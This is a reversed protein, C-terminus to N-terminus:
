SYSWKFGYYTKIKNRCCKIINAGFCNNDRAAEAVSPYKKIVEGNITYQIVPVSRSKISAKITKDSPKIGKHKEGMRKNRTGWNSNEKPTMLNLNDLSNNKKNEDIHNVQLGEPIEGNFYYWIVRSLVFDDKYKDNKCKLSIMVYGNKNIYGKLQRKFWKSMITGNKFVIYNDFDINREKNM